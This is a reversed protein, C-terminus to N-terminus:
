KGSAEIRERVQDALQTMKADTDCIEKSCSVAVTRPPNGVHFVFNKIGSRQSVFASAGFGKADEPVPGVNLYQAKMDDVRKKAASEKKYAWVQIGAGYNGGGEPHVRKANYKPSPDRGVLKGPAFDKSKEISRLDDITLFSEVQLPPKEQITGKETSKASPRSDESPAGTQESGGQDDAQGTGTETSQAADGGADEEGESKDSDCAVAFVLLLAAIASTKRFYKM